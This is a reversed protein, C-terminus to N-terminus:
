GHDILISIQAMIVPCLFRNDQKMTENGPDIIWLHHDIMYVTVATVTPFRVQADNRREAIGAIVARKLCILGSVSADVEGLAGTPIFNLHSVIM